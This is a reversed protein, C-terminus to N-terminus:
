NLNIFLVVIHFYDMLYASAGHFEFTFKLQFSLCFDNM